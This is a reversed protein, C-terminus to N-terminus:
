DGTAAKTGLSRGIVVISPDEMKILDTGPHRGDAGGSKSARLERKPVIATKVPQGSLSGGMAAGFIPIFIRSARSPRWAPLSLAFVGADAGERM